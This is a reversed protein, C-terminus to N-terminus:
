AFLLYVPQQCTATMGANSHKETETQCIPGLNAHHDSYSCIDPDSMHVGLKIVKLLKKQASLDYKYDYDFFLFDISSLHPCKEVIINKRMCFSIPILRQSGRGRPGDEILKKFSAQFCLSLRCTCTSPIIYDM